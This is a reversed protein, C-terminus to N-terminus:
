NITIIIAIVGVIMLGIIIGRIADYGPGSLNDSLWTFPYLLWWFM